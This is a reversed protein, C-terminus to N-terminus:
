NTLQLNTHLKSSFRKTKHVVIKNEIKRERWLWFLNKVSWVKIIRNNNHKADDRRNSKKREGEEQVRQERNEQNWERKMSHSSMNCDIPTYQRQTHLRSVGNLAMNPVYIIQAAFQRREYNNQNKKKERWKTQHAWLVYRLAITKTGIRILWQCCVYKYNDSWWASVCWVCCVYHASANICMM